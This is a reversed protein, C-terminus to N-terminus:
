TQGNDENGRNQTKFAEFSKYAEIFLPSGSLSLPSVAGLFMFPYTGTNSPDIFSKYLDIASDNNIINKMRQLEDGITLGFGFVYIRLQKVIEKDLSELSQTIFMHGIGYKRTTRVADIINKTLNQVGDEFANKSIFRHAEDM